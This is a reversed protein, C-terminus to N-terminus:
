FEFSTQENGPEQPKEAEETETTLIIPTRGSGERALRDALKNEERVVHTISVERFHRLLSLVKSHLEKLHEAKVKYVGTIQRAMLESDTSIEVETAGLEAAKELGRILAKYEAVNNTTEGIYESIEALIRAESDSLVVGIGAAGPNGKSAGDTFITVKM